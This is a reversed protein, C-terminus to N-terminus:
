KPSASTTRTPALQSKLMPRYFHRTQSMWGAATLDACSKRPGCQPPTDERTARKRLDDFIRALNIVISLRADPDCEVADEHIAIVPDGGAAKHSIELFLKAGSGARDWKHRADRAMSLADFLYQQTIVHLGASAVANLIAADYVVSSADYQRRKGTGSHHSAIPSLLGERTWHRIRERTAAQDPAGPGLQEAIQGVTLTPIGLFPSPGTLSMPDLVHHGKKAQDPRGTRRPM